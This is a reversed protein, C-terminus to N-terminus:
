TGVNKRKYFIIFSFVEHKLHNSNFGFLLISVNGIHTLKLATAAEKGASCFLIDFQVTYFLFFFSKFINQYMNIFSGKAFTM